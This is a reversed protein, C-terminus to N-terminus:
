APSALDVRDRFSPLSLEFVEASVLERSKSRANEM